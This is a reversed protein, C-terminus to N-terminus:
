SKSNRGTRYLGVLNLVVSMGSLVGITFDLVPADVMLFREALIAAALCICGIPMLWEEKLLVM